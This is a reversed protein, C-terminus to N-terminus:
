GHGQCTEKSVTSPRKQCQVLDRKVRTAITGRDTAKAPEKLSLSLSLSFSLSLPSLPSLTLTLSLSSLSRARSLSLSLLSHSFLSPSFLTLSSLPLSSLSLSLPSFLSAISCPIGYRNVSRRRGAVTRGGEGGADGREKETARRAGLSLRSVHSRRFPKEHHAHPCPM